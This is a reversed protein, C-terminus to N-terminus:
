PPSARKMKTTKILKRLNKTHQEDCGTINSRGKCGGGKKASHYTPTDDIPSLPTFGLGVCWLEVGWLGVCWVRCVVARFVVVGCAVGGCVLVGSVVNGEM